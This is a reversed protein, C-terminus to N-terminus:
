PNWEHGRRLQVSFLKGLANAFLDGQHHSFQSGLLLSDGAQGNHKDTVIGGACTYTPLLCFAQRSTPM